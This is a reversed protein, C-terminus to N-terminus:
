RTTSEMSVASLAKVEGRDTAVVVTEDVVLICTPRGDVQGAGVTEGKGDLVILSGDECGVVVRTGGDTRVCALVTPPSPMRRAWVKKCRCDLAVVLGSSIAAVIEKRGDGDLDAIDLDRMNDTPIRQGPGFHANYLPTGDEAWVSVRNWTGNVESAVERKGDGDLDEYFIHKRSM